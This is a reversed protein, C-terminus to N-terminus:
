VRVFQFYYFLSGSISVVIAEYIVLAIRPTLRKFGITSLVVFGIPMQLICISFILMGINIKLDM